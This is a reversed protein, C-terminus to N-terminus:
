SLLDPVFLVHSKSLEHQLDHSFVFPSLFMKVMLVPLLYLLFTLHLCVILLRLSELLICAELVRYHVGVLQGLSFAELLHLIELAKRVQM